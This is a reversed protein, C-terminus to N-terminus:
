MQPETKHGNTIGNMATSIAMASAFSLLFVTMMVAMIGLTEIGLQQLAILGGGFLIGNPLSPNGSASAFTHETFFAIMIIGFMGGVMHAPLLGVPDSFWNFKNFWGAAIVYIPGAILGLIVSSAPSVFGALPTIVILGMLVGNAADLLNPKQKTVYLVFVMSSLFSAAAALFTTVIAVM